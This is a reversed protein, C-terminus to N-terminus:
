GAIFVAKKPSKSSSRKTSANQKHPPSSYSHDLFIKEPSPTFQLPTIVVTPNQGERSNSRQKKSSSESQQNASERKVALKLGTASIRTPSLLSPILRGSLAHKKVLDEHVIWPSTPKNGAQLASSRIYLEIIERSPIATCRTLDSGPVFSIIKDENELQINYRYSSSQSKKKTKSSLGEDSLNGHNEKDSSPSGSVSAVEASSDLEVKMIKGTFLRGKVKVKLEVKEGLAFSSSLFQTTEQLLSELTSASHHVHQLIPKEFHTPFGQLRQRASVESRQAEEFTMGTQGTCQCTWLAQAYVELQNEYDIKSSFVENTFPILFHPEALTVTKSLVKPIYLKKGLLPM